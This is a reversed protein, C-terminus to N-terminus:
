LSKLLKAQETNLDSEQPLILNLKVKLDGTGKTKLDKAGKGKVVLTKGTNSGKPIKIKIKTKDPADVTKAAGFIADSLSIDLTTIVDAGKRAFKSDPLVKTIVLLDGAPGGNSSPMGKGKLRLRGGDVAGAPIKVDFSQEEKKGPMRLRIKKTCGKFAEDFSLDLNVKVDSGKTSRTHQGGYISSVDVPRRSTRTQRPQGTQNVAFDWDTGFAGEGKRLSELIDAWGGVGGFIDSVNFGAGGAGGGAAQATWGPPVQGNGVAGYQDYVERKKKDSLVEYAENIQKFKEEDGGADPHNKRALKRFAKKIEEPSATRSVGLTKYYDPTKAM